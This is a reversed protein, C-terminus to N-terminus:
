HISSALRRYTKMRCLSLLRVRVPLSVQVNGEQKSLVLAQQLQANFQDEPTMGIVPQAHLPAPRAAVAASRTPPLAQVPVARLCLPTLPVGLLAHLTPPEGRNRHMFTDFTMRNQSPLLVPIDDTVPVGFIFEEDPGWSISKKAGFGSASRTPTGPRVASTANSRNAHLAARDTPPLAPHHMADGLAVFNVASMGSAALHSARETAAVEEAKAAAARNESAAKQVRYYKRANAEMKKKSEEADL